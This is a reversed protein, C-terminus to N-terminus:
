TQRVMVVNAVDTMEARTPRPNTNMSELVHRAVIVPKGQVKCKTIM